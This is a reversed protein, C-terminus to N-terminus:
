IVTLRSQMCSSMTAPKCLGCLQAAKAAGLHVMFQVSEPCTICISALSARSCAPLTHHAIFHEVRNLHQEGTAHATEKLQPSGSLPLTWAPGM